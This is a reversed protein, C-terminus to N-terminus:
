NETTRSECHRRGTELWPLEHPAQTACLIVPVPKNSLVKTKERLIILCHEMRMKNKLARNGPPFCTQFHSNESCFYTKKLVSYM